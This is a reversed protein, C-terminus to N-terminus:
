CRHIVSAGQGIKVSPLPTQVCAILLASSSKIEKSFVFNFYKLLKQM